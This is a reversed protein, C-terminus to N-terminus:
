SDEAYEDFFRGGKKKMQLNRLAILRVMLVSCAGASLVTFLYKSSWLKTLLDM